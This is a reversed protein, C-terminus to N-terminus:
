FHTYDVHMHIGEIAASQSVTATQGQVDLIGSRGCSNEFDTWLQMGAPLLSQQLHWVNVWRSLPVEISANAGTHLSKSNAYSTYVYPVATNTCYLLHITSSLTLM